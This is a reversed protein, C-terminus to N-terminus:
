EAEVGCLVGAANYDTSGMASFSWRGTGDGETALVYGSYTSTDTPFRVLSRVGAGSATATGIKGSSTLENINRLTQSGGSWNCVPLGLPMIMSTIAKNSSSTSCGYYTSQTVANQVWIYRGYGFPFGSNPALVGNFSFGSYDSASVDFDSGSAGTFIPPTTGLNSRSFYDGFILGPALFTYPDQIGFRSVCANTAPSGIFAREAYAYSNLVTGGVSMSMLSNSGNLYSAIAANGDAGTATTGTGPNCSDTYPANFISLSTSIANPEGAIYPMPSAVLYERRRLIRKAGYDSSHANCLRVASEPKMRHLPPRQKQGTPGPDITTASALDALSLTTTNQTVSFWGASNSLNVTDVFCDANAINNSFGYFVRGNANSSPMLGSLATSTGTTLVGICGNAGNSSATSCTTVNRTWNCALKYRDVLMNYGFDYYGSDYTKAPKTPGSTTPVAGYGSYVCRQNKRPDSSANINLCMEYNAADRQVLVMYDSPVHAKVTYAAKNACDATNQCPLEEAYSQGAADTKVLSIAYYYIQPPAALAADECYQTGTVECVKCSGTSTSTCAATATMDISTTTSRVMKYKTTSNANSFPLWTIQFRRNTPGSTANPATGYGQFNLIGRYYFTTDSDKGSGFSDSYTQGLITSDNGDESGLYSMYARAVFKYNVGSRLGTVDINQVNGVAKGV